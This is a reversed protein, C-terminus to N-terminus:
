REVKYFGLAVQVNVLLTYFKDAKDIYDRMLKKSSKLETLPEFEDLLDDIELIMNEIQIDTLNMYPYYKLLDSFFTHSASLLMIRKVLEEDSHLDNIRKEYYSSHGMLSEIHQSLNQQISSDYMTELM